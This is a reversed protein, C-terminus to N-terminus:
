RKVRGHLMVYLNVRADSHKWLREPMLFRARRGVGRLWLWYEYATRQDKEKNCHVCAPVVNRSFVGGGGRSSPWIHDRTLQEARDMQVGCYVCRLGYSACIGFWSKEREPVQEHSRRGLGNREARSM